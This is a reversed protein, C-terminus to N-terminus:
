QSPPRESIEPAGLQRTTERAPRSAAAGASREASPRLNPADAGQGPSAQGEERILYLSHTKSHLARRGDSFLFGCVQIKIKKKSNHKSCDRLM